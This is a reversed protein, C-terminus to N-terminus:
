PFVSEVFLETERQMAQRLGEGVDPFRDEDPVVAPVNRLYLWQSAFSTVLARAREDALM